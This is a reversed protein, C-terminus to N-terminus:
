EEDKRAVKDIKTLFENFKKKLERNEQHAVALENKINEYERTDEVQKRVKEFETMIATTTTTNNNKMKIFTTICGIIATLAPAAAILVTFIYDLNEVTIM